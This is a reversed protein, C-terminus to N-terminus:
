QMFEVFKKYCAISYLGSHISQSEWGDCVWWDVAPLCSVTENIIKDKGLNLLSLILHAYLTISTSGPNKKFIFVIFLIKNDWIKIQM